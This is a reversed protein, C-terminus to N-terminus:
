RNQIFTHCRNGHEAPDRKHTVHCNLPRSPGVKKDAFSHVVYRGKYIENEAGNNKISVFFRRGLINANKPLEKQIIFEFLSRPLIGDLEKLEEASIKPDNQRTGRPSLVEALSVHM